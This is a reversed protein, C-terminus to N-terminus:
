SKRANNHIINRLLLLKIHITDDGDETDSGSDDDLEEVECDSSPSTFYDELVELLAGQDNSSLGLLANVAKAAEVACANATATSHKLTSQVHETALYNNMFARVVYPIGGIVGHM